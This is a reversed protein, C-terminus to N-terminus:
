GDGAAQAASSKITVVYFAAGGAPEVTSVVLGGAGGADPQADRHRPSGSFPPIASMIIAVTTM